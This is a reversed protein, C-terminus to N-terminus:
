SNRKSTICFRKNSMKNNMPAQVQVSIQCHGDSKFKCKTEFVSLRMNQICTLLPKKNLFICVFPTRIAFIEEELKFMRMGM